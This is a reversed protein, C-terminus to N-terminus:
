RRLQRRMRVCFWHDLLVFAMGIEVFYVVPHSLASLSLQIITTDMLKEAPAKERVTNEVRKLSVM